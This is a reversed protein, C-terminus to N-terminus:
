AEDGASQAVPDSPSWCGQFALWLCPLVEGPMIDLKPKIVMSFYTVCICAQLLQALQQM